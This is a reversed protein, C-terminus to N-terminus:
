LHKAADIANRLEPENAGNVTHILKGAPSYVLLRPINTLNYQEAVPSSQRVIDVKRIAVDADESAIVDLVPIIARCPGSWVAYFVVVTVKGEVLHQLINIRDAQGIIAVDPNLTRRKEAAPSDTNPAPAAPTPRPKDPIPIYTFTARAIDTVPLRRRAGATDQFHFQQKDFLWLTGTVSGSAVTELVATVQGHEFDVGRVSAGPLNTTAGGTLTLQFAADAYGSVDAQLNKGGALHVLDARVTGALLALGALTSISTRM